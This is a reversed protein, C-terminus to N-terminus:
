LRDFLGFRLQQNTGGDPSVIGSLTLTGTLLISDGSNLLSITPFSAFISSADANDPSGDGITPTHTDLGSTRPPGQRIQWNVVGGPEASGCFLALALACGVPALVRGRLSTWASNSYM